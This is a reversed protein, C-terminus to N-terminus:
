YFEIFHLKGFAAWMSFTNKFVVNLRFCDFLGTQIKFASGTPECRCCRRMKQLFLLMKIAFINFFHTLLLLLM